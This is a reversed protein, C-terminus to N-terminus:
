RMSSLWRSGAVCVTGLFIAVTTWLSVPQQLLTTAADCLAQLHSSNPSWLSPSYVASILTVFLAILVVISGVIGPLARKWPFLIAPLAVSESQVAAMVSQLFGSSPLIDGAKEQLATDIEHDTM